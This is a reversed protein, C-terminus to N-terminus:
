HKKDGNKYLLSEKQLYNLDDKNFTLNNKQTSAKNMLECIGMKMFDFTKM